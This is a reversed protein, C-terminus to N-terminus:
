LTVRPLQDYAKELDMFALMRPNQQQSAVLIIYILLLQYDKMRHRLLFGVQAEVLWSYCVIENNLHQLYSLM